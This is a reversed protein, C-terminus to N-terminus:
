LSSAGLAGLLALVSAIVVAEAALAALRRASAHRDRATAVGAALASAIVPVAFMPEAVWHTWQAIDELSAFSGTRVFLVILTLAFVGVAGTAVATCGAAARALPHSIRNAFGGFAFAGLAAGAIVPPILMWLEVFPVSLLLLAISAVSVVAIEAGRRAVAARGAVVHDM